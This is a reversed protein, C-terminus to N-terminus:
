RAHGAPPFRRGYPILSWLQRVPDAVLSLSCNLAPTLCMGSESPVGGSWGSSALPLWHKDGPSAASSCSPFSEHVVLMGPQALRQSRLADGLPSLLGGM